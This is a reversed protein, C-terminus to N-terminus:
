CVTLNFDFAVRPKARDISTPSHVAPLFGGITGRHWLSRSLSTIRSTASFRRPPLNRGLSCRSFRYSSRRFKGLPRSPIELARLLHFEPRHIYRLTITHDSGFRLTDIGNTNIHYFLARVVCLCVRSEVRLLFAIVIYICPRPAGDSEILM